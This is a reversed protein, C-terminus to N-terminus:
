LEPTTQLLHHRLAQVVVLPRGLEGVGVQVLGGDETEGGELLLSSALCCWCCRRCHGSQLPPSSLGARGKPLWVQPSATLRPSLGTLDLALEALLEDLLLVDLLVLEDDVPIHLPLAAHRGRVHLLHVIKVYDEVSSFYKRGGPLDQAPQGGGEGGGRGVLQPDAQGGTSEEERIHLRVRGGHSVHHHLVLVVGGGVGGVGGAEGSERRRERLQGRGWSVLHLYLERRSLLARLSKVSDTNMSLVDCGVSRPHNLIVMSM